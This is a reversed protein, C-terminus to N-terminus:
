QNKKCKKGGFDDAFSGSAPKNLLLEQKAAAKPTVLNVFTLSIIKTV